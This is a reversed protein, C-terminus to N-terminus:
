PLPNILSSYLWSELIILLPEDTLNPEVEVIDSTPLGVECGTESVLCTDRSPFRSFSLIISCLLFVRYGLGYSM